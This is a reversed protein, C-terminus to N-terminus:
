QSAAASWRRTTRSGAWGWGMLHPERLLHVPVLTLLMFHSTFPILTAHAM